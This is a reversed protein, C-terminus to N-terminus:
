EMKVQTARVKFNFLGGNFNEEIEEATPTFYVHWTNNYGDDHRNDWDEEPLMEHNVKMVTRVNEVFGGTSWMSIEIKMTEDEKLPEDLRFTVRHSHKDKEWIEDCSKGEAINQGNMRKRGSKYTLYVKGASGDIFTKEDSEYPAKKFDLLDFDFTFKHAVVEEAEDIYASKALEKKYHATQKVLRKIKSEMLIKYNAAKEVANRLKTETDMMKEASREAKSGKRPKSPM